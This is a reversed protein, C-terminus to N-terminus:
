FFYSYFSTLERKGWIMCLIWQISLRVWQNHFMQENNILCLTMKQTNSFIVYSTAMMFRNHWHYNVVYWFSVTQCMSEISLFITTNCFHYYCTYHKTLLSCLVNYVVIAFKKSSFEFRTYLVQYFQSTISCWWFDFKLLFINRLISLIHWITLKQYTTFYWQYLGKIIAVDYTINELVWFIIRHKMLSSCINWLWHTLNLMWHIMIEYSWTVIFICYSERQRFWNLFLFSFFKSVKWTLAM